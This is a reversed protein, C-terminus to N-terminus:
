RVAVPSRPKAASNSKKGPRYRELAEKRERAHDVIPAPYDRGIKVGAERAVVEPMEWPSHVFRAPVMQLEPLYRKVYSGHPDFKRGQLVPNFIRHWPQADTGTGASWQWGGNNLAVDGDGLWALFHREGMRWDAHLDKTLFSAVIMRGRNHMWGERRLQRMAADVIPYGTMGERWANFTGVNTRWPVADFGARFSNRAVRPHNALIQKYFERWIVQNLFVEASRAGDAPSFAASAIARYLRRVSLSGVALHHSLRSTGELAPLDRRLRYSSLGGELFSQLDAIAAAEGGIITTGSREGEFPIEGPPLSPTNIERITPLPPAIDDRRALWARRYASYVQFPEGSSNLIEEKEFLVDDKFTRFIRGEEGLLARIREDAGVTAPDYSRTAYVGAAGTERAMRILIGGPDGARIFLEGGLARLAGRLATLGERIIRRRAPAIEVGPGPEEVVYLPIVASADQMASWLALHDQARLENRIWVIIRGASM